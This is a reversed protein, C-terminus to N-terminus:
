VSLFERHDQLTHLVRLLAHSSIKRRDVAAAQLIASWAYIDLGKSRTSLDIDSSSSQHWLEQFFAMAASSDLNPATESGFPRQALASLYTTGLHMATSAPAVQKIPKSSYIALPKSATSGYESPVSASTSTPAPLKAEAKEFRSIRLSQSVEPIAEMWHRVEDIKGHLAYVRMINHLTPLSQILQEPHLDEKTVREFLELILVISNLSVYEPISLLNKVIVPRIQYRKPEAVLHRLLLNLMSQMAPINHLQKSQSPHYIATGFLTSILTNVRKRGLPLYYLDMNSIYELTRELVARAGAYHRISLLSSLVPFIIKEFEWWCAENHAM